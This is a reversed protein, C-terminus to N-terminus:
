DISMLLNTDRYLKRFEKQAKERAEEAASIIQRATMGDFPKAVEHWPVDEWETVSFSSMISAKLDDNRAARLMVAAVVHGSDHHEFCADFRAGWSGRRLAKAVYDVRAQFAQAKEGVKSKRPKPKKMASGTMVGKGNSNKAVYAGRTEMPLDLVRVFTRSSHVDKIKAIIM